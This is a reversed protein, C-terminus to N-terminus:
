TRSRRRGRTPSTSPSTRSTPTRTSTRSRTPSTPAPSRRATASSSSPTRRSSARARSPTAPRQDAGAVVVTGQPVHAIETGPPQKSAEPTSSCTTSAERRPGRDATHSKADFLYYTPGSTTCKNQFCEPKRKSAFKVADYLNPFAYVGPEPRAVQGSRAARRRAPPPIVNPRSTTSTCSRPRASRSSRRSPTRSTRFGSRSGTPQRGQLDRARLRRAHRHPQPHDRDRPRDRRAHGRADAADAAGPLRAPHRRQLDLGLVTPKTAIVIASAALARAVLAIILLNRRRGGM